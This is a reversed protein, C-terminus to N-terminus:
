THGKEFWYGKTGRLNTTQALVSRKMGKDVKLKQKLDEFTMKAVDSHRKVYISADNM